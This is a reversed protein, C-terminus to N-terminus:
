GNGEYSSLYDERAADTPTYRELKGIAAPSLRDGTSAATRSSTPPM